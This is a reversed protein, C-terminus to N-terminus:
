CLIALQFIKDGLTGDTNRIVVGIGSGGTGSANLTSIFGTETFQDAYGINGIFGTERGITAVRACNLLTPDSLEVLYVGTSPHETGSVAGTHALLTGNWNVQATVAGPGPQGPPGQEGPQGDAGPQGPQGPQGDAGPQGPPGQQNWSIEKELVTCHGLLSGAPLDKDILRITGTAKLLCANFVNGSSPITAWAVGGVVAGVAAAGIVLLLRLKIM